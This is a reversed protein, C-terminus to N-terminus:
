APVEAARAASALDRLAQTVPHAIHIQSRRADSPIRNAFFAADEKDRRCNRATVRRWSGAETVVYDRDSAQVTAGPTMSKVDVRDQSPFFKGALVHDVFQTFERRQAELAVNAMLVKHKRSM